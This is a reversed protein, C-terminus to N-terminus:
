KLRNPFEEAFSRGTECYTHGPERLHRRTQTRLVIPFGLKGINPSGATASWFLKPDLPICMFVPHEFLQTPAYGISMHRQTKLSTLTMSAGDEDDCLFDNVVIEDLIVPNRDDFRYVFFSRKRYGTEIRVHKLDNYVAAAEESLTSVLYDFHAERTMFDEHAM